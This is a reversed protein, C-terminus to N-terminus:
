RSSTETREGQSEYALNLEDHNIGCADRGRAANILAKRLEERSVLGFESPNSLIHDVAQKLLYEQHEIPTFEDPYLWWIKGSKGVCRWSGDNEMDLLDIEEDIEFEHGHICNVVRVKVGSRLEIKKEM